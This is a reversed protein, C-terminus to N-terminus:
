NGLEQVVVSSSSWCGPDVYAQSGPGNAGVVWISITHNGAGLGPFVGQITAQIGDVGAEAAKIPNRAYVLTTPANDIRLELVAGTGSMQMVGVRGTILHM